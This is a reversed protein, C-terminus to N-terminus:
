PEKFEVCSTANPRAPRACYRVDNLQCRDCLFGSGGGPRGLLLGARYALLISAVLVGVGLLVGLAPM